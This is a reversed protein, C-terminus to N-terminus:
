PRKDEGADALRTNFQELVRKGTAIPDDEANPRGGAAPGGQGRMGQAGGRGRAMGMRGQGRGMGGGGRAANAGAGGGGPAGGGGQAARRERFGALRDRLGAQGGAGEASGGGAGVASPAVAGPIDEVGLVKAEEDNDSGAPTGATGSQKSM